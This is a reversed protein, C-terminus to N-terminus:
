SKKGSVADSVTEGLPVGTRVRGPGTIINPDAVGDGDCDQAGDDVVITGDGVLTNAGSTRAFLAGTDGANGSLNNGVLTNSCARMAFFGATGAGTAINNRVVNDRARIFEPVGGAGRGFEIGNVAAGEFRNDRIVSATIISASVGSCWPGRIVNDSITVGSGGIPRIGGFFFLTCPATTVVTNRQILSGDIPFTLLTPGAGQMQIGTQTGAPGPSTFTNDTVVAGTAGSFFVCEGLGCTVTNHSFRANLPPLGAASLDALYPGDFTGTADLVLGDVVVNAAHVQLVFDVAPSGAFLGSGPTACTLTVNDTTIFVDASVGIMGQVAIVAGSSASALATLLGAEDTVTATAAPCSFAPQTSFSPGAIRSGLRPALRQDECGLLGLFLLAPVWQTLRAM